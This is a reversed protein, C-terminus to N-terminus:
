RSRRDKASPSRVVNHPVTVTAVASAGNGSGDTAAYTATYTRGTGNGSREARLLFGADATGTEAGQIDGTTHGDGGGPADDPESSTLSLLTVEPMSCLDTTDISATIERMTHNPPWLMAPDLSVALEPATTDVVTVSSEETVVSGCEDTVTFTVTTTGVAFLPPADNSVEPEGCGGEIVVEELWGAILPDSSAVGGMTNCELTLAPPPYVILAVAHVEDAGIDVREEGNWDGDFLRDEGDLDIAPWSPSPTPNGADVAPSVPQLHYETDAIQFLPDDWINHATPDYPQGGLWAELDGGLNGFFDSYTVGFNFNFSNPMHPDDFSPQFIGSNLYPGGLGYGSSGYIISSDINLIGEGEIGPGSDFGTYCEVEIGGAGTQTSNDAITNLALNVTSTSEGFAMLFILMGGGVADEYSNTTENLAVLNNIFDVTASAPLIETDFPDRINESDAIVQIEVGGGDVDGMNDSFINGEITFNMGPVTTRQSFIGAALGGGGGLESPTMAYNGTVTNGTMTLTFGQDVELDFVNAILELGGGTGAGNGEFRNDEVVLVQHGMALMDIGGWMGGGYGTAANMSIHNGGITIVESGYGYTKAYIGGGFGITGGSGGIGAQNANILNDTVTISASYPNDPTDTYLFAGGGDYDTFNNQIVNNTITIMPSGGLCNPTGREARAAVFIGGGTGSTDFGPHYTVSNDEILNNSIETVTDGYYCAKPYIYLGGGSFANNGAIVNNTIVAGGITWIASNGGGTVTFGEVRSNYGALNVVSLYTPCVGTGDIVTLLRSDPNGPDLLFADAVINISRQSPHWAIICENYTGPMVRITDGDSAQDYAYQITAWPNGESGDGSLDDGTTAVWYTEQLIVIQPPSESLRSDAAMRWDDAALASGLAFASLVLTLATKVRITM